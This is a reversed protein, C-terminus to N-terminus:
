HTLESSPTQRLRNETAIVFCRLAPLKYLLSIKIAWPELPQSTQSYRKADPRSRALGTRSWSLSSLLALLCKHSLCFVLKYCVARLLWVWDMPLANIEEPGSWRKFTWWENCWISDFKLIFKLPVFSNEFWLLWWCLWPLHISGGPSSPPTPPLLSV